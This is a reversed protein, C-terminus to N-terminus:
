NFILLMLHISHYVRDLQHMRLKRRLCNLFKAHSDIHRSHCAKSSSAHSHLVHTIKANKVHAHYNKPYFTYADDDHVYQLGAKMFQPCKKGQANMKTNEKGGIQFGVDHVFNYSERYTFSCHGAYSVKQLALYNRQTIEERSCRRELESQLASSVITFENYSLPSICNIYRLHTIM